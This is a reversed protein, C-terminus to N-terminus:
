RIGGNVAVTATMQGTEWCNTSSAPSLRQGGAANGDTLRLAPGSIVQQSKSVGALHSWQFMCRVLMHTTFFDVASIWHCFNLFEADTRNLGM